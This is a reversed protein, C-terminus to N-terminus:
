AGGSWLTVAKNFDSTQWTVSWEDYEYTRQLQLYMNWVRALDIARVLDDYDVSIKLRARFESTKIKNDSFHKILANNADDLACQSLDSDVSLGIAGYPKSM